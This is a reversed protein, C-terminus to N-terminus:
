AAIRAGRFTRELHQLLHRAAGPAAVPRADSQHLGVLGIMRHNARQHRAVAFAKEGFLGLLAAAGSQRRKSPQRREDHRALIAGRRLGMRASQPAGGM